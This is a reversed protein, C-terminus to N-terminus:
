FRLKINQLKGISPLDSFNMKLPSISVYGESVAEFDSGDIDEWTSEGGIWYYHKGRPDTNEIVIDRYERRGLKTFRYNKFERGKLKPFNINLFTSSKLGLMEFQRVLRAIFRAAPQYSPFNAADTNSVALSPIGLNAGEIAAAVTGSYTVDEGMNSGHNIGSIVLDPAKHKLIGHVALLVCDTPTGDCAFHNKDRQHIRLPRELTLSHSSASQERDPAFVIVEAVRKLAKELEILGEAYIGDDNTLLILM